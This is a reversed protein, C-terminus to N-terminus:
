LPANNCNAKERKAEYLAKDARDLLSTVTDDRQVEATGISITQQWPLNPLEKQVEELIATRIKEVVVNAGELDTAPLFIALEDGGVRGCLDTLRTSSIIARGYLRLLKDGAPHGFTNNFRSFQDIDLYLLTGDLGNEQIIALSEELDKPFTGQDLFKRLLADREAQREAALRINTLKVALPEAEVEGKQFKKLQRLFYSKLYEEHAARRRQPLPPQQTSTQERETQEM